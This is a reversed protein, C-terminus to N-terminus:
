GAAVRLRVQHSVVLVNKGTAAMPVAVDEYFSAVRAYVSAVPEGLPPAAHAGHMLSEYTEYGLAM